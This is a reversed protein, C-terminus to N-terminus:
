ANNLNSGKKIKSGPIFENINQSRKGERQIELHNNLVEGIKGQANGIEAKLIKYREGNYRFWAGPSPYLGNIKGIVPVECNNILSFLKSLKKSDDFNEEKSYGAMSKMWNLDAGACFSKGEGTLIVVRTDEELNEFAAQLEAVLTDNFANRVDPRNLTITTIHNAIEVRITEM